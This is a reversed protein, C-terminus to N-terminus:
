FFRCNIIEFSVPPLFSFGLSAKKTFFKLKINQKYFLVSHFDFYIFIHSILLLSEKVNGLNGRFDSLRSYVVRVHSLLLSYKDRNIDTHGGFRLCRKLQM